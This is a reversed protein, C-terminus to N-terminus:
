DELVEKAMNVGQQWTDILKNKVDNGYHKLKILEYKGKIKNIKELNEYTCHDRYKDLLDKNYNNILSDYHNFKLENLKSKEQEVDELIGQINSILDSAIIKSSIEEYRKYLVAIMKNEKETFETKYKELDSSKIKDMKKNYELVDEIKMSEMSMEVDLVLENLDKLADEKSNFYSCSLAINMFMAYFLFRSYKRM